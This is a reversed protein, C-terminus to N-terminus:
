IGTLELYRRYYDAAWDYRAPLVHKFLPLIADVLFQDAGDNHRPLHADILGDYSEPLYSESACPHLSIWAARDLRREPIMMDGVLRRRVIDAKALGPWTVLKGNLLTEDFGWEEELTRQDGLGDRLVRSISQEMSVGPIGMLDFWQTATGATYCMYAKSYREFKWIKFRGDFAFYSADLPWMDADSTLLVDNDKVHPQLHTFLRSVQATTSPKFDPVAKLFYVDAEAGHLANLVLNHRQSQWDNGPRDVLTVHPEWGMSAWIAATLPLHFAYRLNADSALVAYKTSM